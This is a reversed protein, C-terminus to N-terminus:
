PSLAGTEFGPNTIANTASTLPEVALDDCYGAGSGGSNKWCFVTASTSSSGTTFLVAAQTYSTTALNTYTETGGFDKM